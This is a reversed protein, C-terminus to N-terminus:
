EVLPHLQETVAASTMEFILHPQLRSSLLRPTTHPTHHTTRPAQKSLHSPTSPIAPSTIAPLHRLIIGLWHHARGSQSAPGWAGWRARQQQLLWQLLWQVASPFVRAGLLDAQSEMQSCGWTFFSGFGLGLVRAARRAEHRLAASLAACVCLLCTGSRLRIPTQKSGDGRAAGRAAGTTRSGALGRRGAGGRWTGERGTSTAASLDLSDGGSGNTGAEPCM